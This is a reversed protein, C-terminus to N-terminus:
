RGDKARTDDARQFPNVGAAYTEKNNLRAVPKDGYNLAVTKQAKELGDTFDALPITM